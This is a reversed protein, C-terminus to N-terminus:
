EKKKRKKFCLFFAVLMLVGGILYFITTGIGGTEPIVWEKKTNEVKVKAVPIGPMIEIEIPDRLLMYGDPAQIEKVQYKGILLPKSTAKGDEGTTLQGVEIGDKIIQFVAGKLKINADKSDVKEIEIQGKSLPLVTAENSVTLNNDFLLEAKNPIGNDALYKAIMEANAGDSIKTKIHLTYMQDALYAYSNEQKPLEITVKKTVKDINPTIEIVQDSADVLKVDLIDLIDELDDRLIVKELRATDNGFDYDIHWTFEENNAQLTAKKVRKEDFDSVWKTLKSHKPEVLKEVEPKVPPLEEDTPTKGEVVAINTVKKTNLAEKTVKVKFTVVREKTDAIDGLSVQIRNDKYTGADQDAEDTVAQGAVKMSGKVYETGVPIEDTIRMDKILANEVTNRATIKYELEDGVHVKQVEKGAVTVEKKAEIEGSKLVEPEKKVKVIVKNSDDANIKKGTLEDIGAISAINPIETEQKQGKVKVKFEIVTEPTKGTYSGGNSSNAGEGVRVTLKRQNVDYDVQDDGAQDTKAGANPGSVIKASGPVFEFRSDLIDEVKTGLSKTDAQTNKVRLRFKVEEDAEYSEKQDIVSKEILLEPVKAKVAFALVNLVHDDGNTTAKLRVEKQGPTIYSEPLKILDADIGLNNKYDPEFTGPYKDRMHEGYESITSNYINNAPNLADTIEKWSGKSEIELKDGTWFRDGQVAFTSIKPDLVGSNAALFDKVVFEKSGSGTPRKLSGDYVTFARSAQTKDKTIVLMYWGAFSYYGANYANGTSPYPINAVTYSGKKSNSSKLLETIDAYNSYFTGDIGFGYLLGQGSYMKQPTVNFSVGTPTTMKVPSTIQSMSLNYRTGSWYLGAWEVEATDPIPMYAKSSNSTTKDKDVDILERAYQNPATTATTNSIDSYLATKRTSENPIKVGLNVNGTSYMDGKHVSQYTPTSFGEGSDLTAASTEREPVFILQLQVILLLTSVLISIGRRFRSNERIM